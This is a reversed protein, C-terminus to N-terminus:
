RMLIVEGFTIENLGTLTNKYKVIFVYAGQEQNDNPAWKIETGKEFYMLGGWRDFIKMEILEFYKGM